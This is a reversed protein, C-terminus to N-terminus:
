PKVLQLINKPDGDRRPEQRLIRTTWMTPWRSLMNTPWASIQNPLVLLPLLCSSLRGDLVLDPTFINCNRYVHQLSERPCILSSGSPWVGPRSLNAGLEASILELSYDRRQPDASSPGVRVSPSCRPPATSYPYFFGAKARPPFASRSAPGCRKPLRIAGKRSTRPTFGAATGSGLCSGVRAASCKGSWDTNNRAYARGAASPSRLAHM